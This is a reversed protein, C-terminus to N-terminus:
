LDILQLFMSGTTPDIPIFIQNTTNSGSITGWNTGIGVGPANTQAQLTWGIYNAPWSLQLASDSAAATITPAPIFNFTFTSASQNVVATGSEPMSTIATGNVTLGSVNLSGAINYGNWPGAWVGYVGDVQVGYNSINVVNMTANSVVGSNANNLFEVAYCLSNTINIHNINVNTINQFTGGSG